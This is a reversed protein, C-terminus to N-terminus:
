ASVRERCSARGIEEYYIASKVFGLEDAIFQYSHDANFLAEIKLRDMWGIRRYKRAKKM